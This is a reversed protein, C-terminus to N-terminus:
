GHIKLLQENEGMQVVKPTGFMDMIGYRLKIGQKQQRHVLYMLMNIHQIFEIITPVDPM